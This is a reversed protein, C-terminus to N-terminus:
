SRMKDARIFQYKKYRRKQIRSIIIGLQRLQNEFDDNKNLFGVLLNTSTGLSDDIENLEWALIKAEIWDSKDKEGLWKDILNCLKQHNAVRAQQNLRAEFAKRCKPSCRLKNTRNLLMLSKCEQCKDIKLEHRALSLLVKFLDFRVQELTLGYLDTKDSTGELITHRTLDVENSPFMGPSYVLKTENDGIIITQTFSRAVKNLWVTLYKPIIKDRLYCDILERLCFYDDYFKRADDSEFWSQNNDNEYQGLTGIIEVADIPTSLAKIEEATEYKLVDPAHKAFFALIVKREKGTVHWTGLTPSYKERIEQPTSLQLNYFDTLISM